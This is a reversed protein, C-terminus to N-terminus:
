WASGKSLRKLLLVKLVARVCELQVDFERSGREIETHDYIFEPWEPKQWNYKM